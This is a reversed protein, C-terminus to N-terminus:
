KRLSQLVKFIEVYSSKSYEYKKLKWSSLEPIKNTNQMTLKIDLGPIPPKLVLFM